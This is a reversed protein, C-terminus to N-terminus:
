MGRREKRRAPVKIAEERWAFTLWAPDEKIVMSALVENSSAKPVLPPPPPWGMGFKRVWRKKWSIGM